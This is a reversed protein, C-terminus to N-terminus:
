LPKWVTRPASTTPGRSWRPTSARPQEGQRGRPFPSRRCGPSEGRSRGGAGRPGGAKRRRTSQRHQHPERRTHERRGPMPRTRARTTKSGAANSESARRDGPFRPQVISPGQRHPRSRVSGAQNHPRAASGKSAQHDRRPSTFWAATWFFTESALRATITASSPRSGRRTEGQAARYELWEDDEGDVSAQADALLGRGRGAIIEIRRQRAAGPRDANRCKATAGPGDARVPLGRKFTIAPSSARIPVFRSAAM